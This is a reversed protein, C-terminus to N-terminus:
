FANHFRTFQANLVYSSKEMLVRMVLVASVLRYGPRGALLALPLGVAAVLISIHTQLRAYSYIARAIGPEGPNLYEAMYKRTTIALGTAAVGATISTLWGVYVYPGLRM